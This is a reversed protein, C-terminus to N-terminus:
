VAQVFACGAECAMVSAFIGSPQLIVGPVLYTLAKARAEPTKLKDKKAVLSVIGGFALNCGLVIAGAALQKDLQFFSGNGTAGPTPLVPNLKQTKGGDDKVKFEKGVGYTAWFDQNMALPIASHRIVIVASLDAPQLKLVDTYQRVWIAARYVGAGGEIEPVDFMAKHKGTVKQTWSTDWVIAQPPQTAQDREWAEMGVRLTDLESTTRADIQGTLASATPAVALSALTAAGAHLLFDRRPTTM